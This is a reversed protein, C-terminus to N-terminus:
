QKPRCTPRAATGTVGASTCAASATSRPASSGARGNERVPPPSSTIPSAQSALGACPAAHLMHMIHNCGRKCSRLIRPLPHGTPMVDQTAVSASARQM